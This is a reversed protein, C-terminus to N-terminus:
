MRKVKRKPGTQVVAGERAFDPLYKDSKSREFPRKGLTISSTTGSATATKLSPFPNKQLQQQSNSSSFYKSSVTQALLPPNSFELQNQKLSTNNSRQKTPNIPTPDIIELDSDVEDNRTQEPPAYIDDEEQEEEEEGAQEKDGGAVQEPRDNEFTHMKNPSILSSHNKIKFNRLPPPSSSVRSLFGQNHSSTSALPQRPHKLSTPSQPHSYRNNNYDESDQNEEDSDSDLIPKGKKKQLFNIKKKLKAVQKV